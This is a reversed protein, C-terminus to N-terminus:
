PRPKLTILGAAASSYMCHHLTYSSQVKIVDFILEMNDATMQSPDDALWATWTRTDCPVRVGGEPDVRHMDSLRASRSLASQTVLQYECSMQMETSTTDPNRMIVRM